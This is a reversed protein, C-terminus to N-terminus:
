ISQFDEFLMRYSCNPPLATKSLAAFLGVKHCSDCVEFRNEYVTCSRTKEDLYECPDTLDISLTGDPYSYREYCCLGCHRCVEEWSDKNARYTKLIKVPNRM